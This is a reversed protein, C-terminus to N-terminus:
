WFPLSSLYSLPLPRRAVRRLDAALNRQWRADSPTGPVVAVIAGGADRVLAHGRASPSVSFVRPNLGAHEIARNIDRSLRPKM